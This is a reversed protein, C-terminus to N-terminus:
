KMENYLKQLALEVIHRKSVMHKKSLTNQIEELMNHHQESLFCYLKTYPKDVSKRLSLHSTPHAYGNKM